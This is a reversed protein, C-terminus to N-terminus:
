KVYGHYMGEAHDYIWQAMQNDDYAQLLAPLAEPSIRTEGDRGYVRRCVTRLIGEGTRSDRSIEYATTVFGANDGNNWDLSRLIETM